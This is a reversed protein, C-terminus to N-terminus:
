GEHQREAPAHRRVNLRSAARGVRARMAAESYAMQARRVSWTSGKTSNASDTASAPSGSPTAATEAASGNGTEAAGRQQLKLVVVVTVVGGLVFALLILAWKRKSQGILEEVAEDLVNTAAHGILSEM